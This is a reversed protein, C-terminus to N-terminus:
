WLIGHSDMGAYRAYASADFIIVIDGRSDLQSPELNKLSGGSILFVMYESTKISDCVM